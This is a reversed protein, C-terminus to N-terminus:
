LLPTLQGSQRGTTHLCNEVNFLDQAVPIAMVTWLCYQTHTKAAKV